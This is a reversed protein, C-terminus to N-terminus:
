GKSEGRKHDDACCECRPTLFCFFLNVLVCARFLGYGEIHEDYGFLARCFLRRFVNLKRYVFNRQGLILCLDLNVVEGLVLIPIRDIFRFGLRYSELVGGLRSFKDCLGFCLFLRCPM